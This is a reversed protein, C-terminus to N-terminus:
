NCNPINYRLKKNNLIIDITFGQTNNYKLTGTWYDNVEDKITTEPVTTDFYLTDYIKIPTGTTVPKEYKIVYSKKDEIFSPSFFSGKEFFILSESNCGLQWISFNIPPPVVFNGNPCNISAKASIAINTNITSLFDAANYNINLNLPTNIFNCLQTTILEDNFLPPNGKCINIPHNISALIKTDVLPFSPVTITTSSKSFDIDYTFNYINNTLTAKGNFGINIPINTTNLNITSFGCSKTQNKFLFYRGYLLDDRFTLKYESGISEFFNSNVSVVRKQEFFTNLKTSYDIGEVFLKYNNTPLNVEIIAGTAGNAYYPVLQNGTNQDYFFVQPIGIANSFSVYSNEFVGLENYYGCEQFDSQSIINARVNSLAITDPIVRSKFEAILNPKKYGVLTNITKNSSVISLLNCKILDDNSLLNYKRIKNSLTTVTNILSDKNYQTTDENLTKLSKLVNDNRFKTFTKRIFLLGNTPYKITFSIGDNRTLYFYATDIPKKGLFNQSVSQFKVNTNAPNPKRLVLNIAIKQTKSFVFVDQKLPLYGEMQVQITFVIPNNISPNASPGLILNLNGGEANFNTKGDSDFIHMADKGSLTFSVKKIPMSDETVIKANMLVNVFGADINVDFNEVEDKPFKCSQLTIFLLFLGFFLNLRM